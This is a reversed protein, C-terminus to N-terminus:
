FTTIIIIDGRNSSDHHALGSTTLMPANDRNRMQRTAAYITSHHGGWGVLGQPMHCSQNPTGLTSSGDRVEVLQLGRSLMGQVEGPCCMSGVRNIRYTYALGLTTLMLSHWWKEDTKHHVPHPLTARREWRDISPAPPLSPGTTMPTPPVGQYCLYSYALGSTRFM